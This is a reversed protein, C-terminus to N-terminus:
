AKLDTKTEGQSPVFQLKNIGGKESHEDELEQLSIIQYDEEEVPEDKVEEIKM